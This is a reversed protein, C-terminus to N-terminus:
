LPILICRHALPEEIIIHSADPCGYMSSKRLHCKIVWSYKDKVRCQGYHLDKHEEITIGIIGECDIEEAVDSDGAVDNTIVEFELEEVWDLTSTVISIGPKSCTYAKKYHFTSLPFMAIAESRSDVDCAVFQFPPVNVAHATIYKPVQSRVNVFDLSRLIMNKGGASILKDMSAAGRIHSDLSAVNGFRPIYTYGEEQIFTVVEKLGAPRVFVELRGRSPCQRRHFFRFVERGSVVACASQLTQRFGQPHWVWTSLFADVNWVQDAYASVIRHLLTSARGLTFVDRPTWYDCIHKLLSGRLCSTLVLQEFATISSNSM